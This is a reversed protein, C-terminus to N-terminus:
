LRTMTRGAERRSSSARACSTIRGYKTSTAVFLSCDLGSLQVGM